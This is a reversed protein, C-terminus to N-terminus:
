GAESGLLSRATPSTEVADPDPRTHLWRDASIMTVGYWYNENKFHHRRHNKVREQYFRLGPLYRVHALYHVWEYHLALVFYATFGSCALEPTPMVAWWFLVHLPLGYLFVHQPVFLLDLRWPDAHHERHKRPVRFDWTRGAFRRPKYHLIFVHILWEQLPWWAVLVAFPVLEVWRWPGLALRGVLGAAVAATLIRPSGHRYFVRLAEGLTRPLAERRAAGPAAVASGASV